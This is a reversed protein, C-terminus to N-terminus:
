DAKFIADIKDPDTLTNIIKAVKGNPGMINEQFNSIKVSKGTAHCVLTATWKFLVIGEEIEKTFCPTMDDLNAVAGSEKPGVAPPSYAWTVCAEKNTTSDPWLKAGALSKDFAYSYYFGVDDSEFLESWQEGLKGTGWAAFIGSVKEENPTPMDGCCETRRCV